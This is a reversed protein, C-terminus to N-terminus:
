EVEDLLKVIQQRAAHGEKIPYLPFIHNMWPYEYYVHEAHAEKLMAAFKRADPLCIERTGAFLGIKPLGTLGGYMPSLRYDLPDADGSWVRGVDKLSSVDLMPDLADYVNVEPNDVTIDLWPSILVLLKPLPHGNSSLWQSLGLALGGGASDGMLALGEPHDEILDLYLDSVVQYADKFTYEPTKPYIPVIFTMGTDQVMRDVFLWHFLSPQNIYGGGHLYLVNREPTEGEPRVRFVKMGDKYFAEVESNMLGAAVKHEKRNEKIKSNTRKEDLPEADSNVIRILDEAVRSGISGNHLRIAHLSYLMAGASVASALVASTKLIRNM